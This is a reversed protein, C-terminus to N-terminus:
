VGVGCHGGLPPPATFEWPSIGEVETTPGEIKQVTRRRWILSRHSLAAERNQVKLNAPFMVVGFVAYSGASAEFVKNTAGGEPIVAVSDGGSDQRYSTAGTATGRRRSHRGRMYYVCPRRGDLRGVSRNEAERNM